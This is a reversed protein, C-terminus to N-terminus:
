PKKTTSQKRNVANEIYQHELFDTTAQFRKNRTRRLRDSFTADTEGWLGPHVLIQVRDPIGNDFPPSRRWRQNSDGRYEVDIFFQEAYTSDFPEFSERLIWDPPIHFSVTDSINEVITGLVKQESQVRNKVESQHPESSWYQHTSFHVGINHGLDAIHQLADRNKQCLTNYFPSTLLFFYTAQIDYESEIEAMKLAKAPSWDVDHRLLVSGSELDESYERFEYGASDLRELLRRYSDYTFTVEKESM